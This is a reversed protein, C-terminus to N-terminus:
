MRKIAQPVDSKRAEILSQLRPDLAGEKAEQSAMPHEDSRFPPEEETYMYKLTREMEGNGDVYSFVTEHASGLEYPSLDFGLEKVVDFAEIGVRVRGDKTIITPVSSVERPVPSTEVCIARIKADLQNAQIIELLTKCHECRKSYFLTHM